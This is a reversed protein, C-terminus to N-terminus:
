NLKTYSIKLRFRSGSAGPMSPATGRLVVRNPYLVTNLPNNVLIRLDYNRPYYGDIMRQIYRTIRFYYTQNLSDYIGGFYTSGENQDILLGILNGTDQRILTLKPPPILKNKKDPDENQFLLLADNIAVKKGLGFNRIYPLKLRIGVGALGQLYLSERGRLTDHNLIQQKLDPSADLYGNHDFSQFRACTTNLMFGYSLSDADDNHFYIIMRSAPDDLGFTFYSGGSNVPQTQFFLGKMFGIFAASSELASPPAFLLKNGFYETMETLNIRLHASTKKGYVRVSDNPRPKFSKEALLNPYVQLSQNSYYISDYYFDEAIEFVRVRQTTSTDGYYGTYYLTVVVSDLVPNTGFDPASNSLMFQTYLGMTTLGFVPDMVSGLSITTPEDTRLSDIRESYGWLTITDTVLVNLTDSPPLLDIGIEYPDKKCTSLALLLLIGALLSVPLRIPTLKM